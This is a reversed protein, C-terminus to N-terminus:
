HVTVPVFTSRQDRIVLTYHGATPQEGRLTLGGDGTVHGTAYTVPGRVLSVPIRDELRPFPGFLLRSACERRDKARMTCINARMSQWSTEPHPAGTTGLDSIVLQAVGGHSGFRNTARVGFEYEGAQTPTGALTGDNGLTLGPPIQGSVLRVTTGRMGRVAFRSLYSKGVFGKYAPGDDIAPPAGGVTIPDSYGTQVGTGAANTASMAFIYEQGNTLGTVTIPSSTGTVSKFPSGFTVTYSTVPATGQDAPASFAVSVQGPGTTLGTITPPDPPTPVVDMNVIPVWLWDGDIFDGAVVNLNKRLLLEPATQANYWLNTLNTFVTQEDPVMQLPTPICGPFAPTGQISLFGLGGVKPPGVPTPIPDGQGWTARPTEAAEKVLAWIGQEQNNEPVDIGYASCQDAYYGSYLGQGPPLFPGWPVPPASPIPAYLCDTPDLFVRAGVSSRQLSWLQGFTVEGPDATGLADVLQWPFVLNLGLAGFLDQCDDTPFNGSDAPDITLNVMIIEQGHDAEKAWTVLDNFIHNLTLGSVLPGHLAFWNGAYYRVRIDFERAGANLQSILDVSQTQALGPLFSYTTTDHSGPIVIDTLRRYRICPDIDRMWTGPQAGMEASCATPTATPQKPPKATVQLHVGAAATGHPAATAAAAHLPGIVAGVCQAVLMIRLWPTAIKGISRPRPPVYGVPDAAPSARVICM